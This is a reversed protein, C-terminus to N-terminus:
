GSLKSPDEVDASTCDPPATVPNCRAPTGKPIAVTYDHELTPDPQEYDTSVIHAGSDLAAEATTRDNARAELTDADARTRVVMNAALAAKIADADEIPDNLKAFAADPKGPESPTFLLRDELSQHFALYTASTQGGNDLLFYLKGRVAGLAPWGQTKVADGLTAYDGRVDDPTFYKERPLTASIENELRRFMPETIEDDKMEIQIGIPVHGPHADSWTKVLTLCEVFTLCTSNTDVNAEHLVKYGPEDMEPRDPLTVGVQMPYSPEAFKGGDPDDYVDLEIARVGLDFQEPLPAHAYDLTAPLGPVAQQLGELVEPYPRGHYSNHSALVQVQDFRLTGDLPYAAVTTTSAASGEADTGDSSCAAALGVALVVGFVSTSM